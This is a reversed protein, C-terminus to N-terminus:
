MPQVVRAVSKGLENQERCMSLACMPRFTWRGLDVLSYTFAGDSGSVDKYGSPVPPSHTNGYLTVTTIILQRRPGIEDEGAFPDCQVLFQRDVDAMSIEGLCLSLVLRVVACSCEVKGTAHAKSSDIYYPCRLRPSDSVTITLKASALSLRLIAFFPSCITLKELILWWQADLFPRTTRIVGGAELQVFVIGDFGWGSVRTINLPPLPPFLPLSSTRGLSVTGDCM